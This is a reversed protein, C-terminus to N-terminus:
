KLFILSLDLISNGEPEELSLGVNVLTEEELLEFASSPCELIHALSEAEEQGLGIPSNLDTRPTRWAVEFGWPEEVVVFFFREKWGHILSPVGLM